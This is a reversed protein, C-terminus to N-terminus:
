EANFKNLASNLTALFIIGLNLVNAKKSTESLDKCSNSSTM